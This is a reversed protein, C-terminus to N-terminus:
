QFLQSVVDDSLESEVCEILLEHEEEMQELTRKLETKKEEGVDADNVESKYHLYQQMWFAVCRLQQYGYAVYHYSIRASTSLYQLWDETGIPLNGNTKEEKLYKSFERYFVGIPIMLSIAFADAILEEPEKPLMPMICYEDGVLKKGENILYHGLEHALAYRQTYLPTKSDIYICKVEGRGFIQPRVSLEGVVKNNRDTRDENLNIEIIEIGFFDVIKVIDIPLQYANRGFVKNLLRTTCETMKIYNLKDCSVMYEDCIEKLMKMVTQIENRRSNEM